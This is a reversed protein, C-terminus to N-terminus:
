LISLSQIKSKLKNLMLSVRKMFNLIISSNLIIFPIPLYNRQYKTNLM